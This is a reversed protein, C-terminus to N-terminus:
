QLETDDIISLYDRLGDAGYDRYVEIVVKADSLLPDSSLEPAKDKLFSIFVELILHADLARNIAENSM